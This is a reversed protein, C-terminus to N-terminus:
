KKRPDDAPVVYDTTTPGVANVQVISEGSQAWHFHSAKAPLVFISGTPLAKLKAPDFTEGLGIYWTGSLVTYIREEPHSHPMVKYDAPFKVRFAYPGPQGPKGALMAVQGGPPIAANGGWKIDGPLIAVTGPPDGQAQVTSDLVLGLALGTALMARRKLGNMANEEHQPLSSTAAGGIARRM